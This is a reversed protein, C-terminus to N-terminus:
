FRRLYDRNAYIMIAFWVICVCCVIYPIWSESDVASACFIFVLALIFTIIKLITNKM